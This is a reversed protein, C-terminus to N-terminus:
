YMIIYEDPSAIKLKGSAVARLIDKSSLIGILEGDEIVPLAHIGHKVMLKVASSINTSPSISILEKSVYEKLNINSEASVANRRLVYEMDHLAQLADTSSVMGQLEGDDNTIPIHHLDLDVFVQMLKEFPAKVNATLVRNTMIERTNAM